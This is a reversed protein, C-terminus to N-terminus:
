PVPEGLKRVAHGITFDDNYSDSAGTMAFLMKHLRIRLLKIDRILEVYGDPDIENGHGADNRRKWADKERKGFQLKLIKLLRETIIAQPPNNFSGVKNRLVQRINEDVTLEDVAANFKGGLARWVEKELLVTKIANPNAELYAAQLAEIAAGWHVAAIHPTAATAHWYAWCLSGLRLSDYQKYLASVMRSLFKPDIEHLYKLGLPAPPQAALEFARNSLAYGRIASCAVLDSDENFASWGLRVLYVGLAFSLCNMIKTRFEPSPDGEYLVLGPKTVATAESLRCTALYITHGDVTFRVCNRAQSEFDDSSKLDIGNALDHLCRNKNKQTNDKTFHPWVFPGDLNALWEIVFAVPKQTYTLTVELSNVDSAERSEGQAPNDSITAAYSKPQVGHAVASGLVGSFLVREANVRVTGSPHDPVASRANQEAKTELIIHLKEDRRITFSRLPVCLPGADSIAFTGNNLLGAFTEWEWPSM